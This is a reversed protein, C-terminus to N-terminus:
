SESGEKSGVKEKEKQREKLLEGRTFCELTYVATQRNDNRGEIAM